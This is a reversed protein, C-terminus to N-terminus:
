IYLTRVGICVRACVCVCVCVCVVRYKLKVISSYVSNGGKFLAYNNPTM